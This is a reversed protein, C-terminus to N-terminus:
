GIKRANFRIATRMIEKKRRIGNAVNKLLYFRSMKLPECFKQTATRLIKQNRTDSYDPSQLCLKLNGFIVEM